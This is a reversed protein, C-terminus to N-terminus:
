WSITSTGDRPDGKGIKYGLDELRKRNVPSIVQVEIGTQNGTIAKNIREALQQWEADDRKATETEVWERAQQATMLNNSM